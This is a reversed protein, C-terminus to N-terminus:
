AFDEIFKKMNKTTDLNGMLYLSMGLMIDPHKMTDPHRGLDAVMSNWAGDVNDKELFQLARDKSQQMYDEKDITM